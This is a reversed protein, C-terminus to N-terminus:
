PKDDVMKKLCKEWNVHTAIESEVEMLKDIKIDVENDDNHSKLKSFLKSIYKEIETKGPISSVYSLLKKLKNHVMAANTKKLLNQVGIEFLEKPKEKYTRIYTGMRNVQRGWGKKFSSVFINDISYGVIDDLIPKDKVFSLM